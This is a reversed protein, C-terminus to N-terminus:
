DADDTSPVLELLEDETCLDETGVLEPHESCRVYRVKIWDGDETPAVVEVTDGEITMLKDGVKLEFLNMFRCPVKRM